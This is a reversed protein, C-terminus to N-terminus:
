FFKNDTKIYHNQGANQYQSIVMYKTKEANVELGTEEGTVVLAETNKKITHINRGLLILMILM